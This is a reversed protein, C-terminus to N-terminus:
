RRQRQHHRQAGRGLICDVGSTGNLTDNNTTGVIVIAAQRVVRPTRRRSARYGRQTAMRSNGRVDVATWTVVTTGLPYRAPANNMITVPGGCTDEATAQGLAVGSCLKTTVAPAFWGHLAPGHHGGGGADPKPVTASGHIWPSPGRDLQARARVVATVERASESTCVHGAISPHRALSVERSTAM